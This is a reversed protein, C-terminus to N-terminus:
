SQTAEAIRRALEDPGWKPGPRKGFVVLYQARLAKMEADPDHAPPQKAKAAIAAPAAGIAGAERARKIKVLLAADRDSALFPQGPRIRRTAYTMHQTAILLSKTM